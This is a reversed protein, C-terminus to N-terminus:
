EGCCKLWQCYTLAWGWTHVSTVPIPNVPFSHSQSSLWNSRSTSGLSDQARRSTLFLGKSKSNHIELHRGRASEPGREGKLCGTSSQFDDAGQLTALHQPVHEWGHQTSKHLLGAVGHPLFHWRGAPAKAACRLALDM